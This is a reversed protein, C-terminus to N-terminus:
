ISDSNKGSIISKIDESKLKRLEEKTFNLNLLENFNRLTLVKWRANKGGGDYNKNNTQITTNLIFIKIKKDSDSVWNDGWKASEGILAGTLGGGYNIGHSGILRLTEKDAFVACYKGLIGPKVFIEFGPIDDSYRFNIFISSDKSLAWPANKIAKSAKLTQPDIFKKVRFLNSNEWITKCIVKDELPTDSLYDNTSLYVSLLKKENQATVIFPICCLAFAALLANVRSYRLYM